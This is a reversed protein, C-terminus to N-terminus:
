EEEIDSNKILEVIKEYHMGHSAKILISDGMEIVNFLDEMLSDRTSYHKIIRNRLGTAGIATVTSNHIHEGLEGATLLIDIGKGSAYSGIEEHLQKENEGLEFMDGLIAVKRGDALSLLDLAEKMSVPNANYCDDMILYKETQIINSRGPLAAQSVIGQKIEGDSLGLVRAVLAACAANTIVHNGPLNSHCPLIIDDSDVLNFNSGLLGLLQVKEIRMDSEYSFGFRLPITKNVEQITSLLPDDGNLIVAGKPNRHNFMETKAKLIGEQTKLNELHCLGINTIVCIDPRVMASLRDMEEFDSIGMEIVAVEHSDRISLLTLPVGIENNFNGATKLVNFKSSLVAAIAEKTSTKGVSGTIGVFPIDLQNRYFTAIDKLAQLSDRVIIYPRKREYSIDSDNEDQFVPPEECVACVAGLEYAKQIFDHGDVREGRTAFFLNGPEIVRTDLQAGSIEIKKDNENGFFAGNCAAAINGLTMNKMM